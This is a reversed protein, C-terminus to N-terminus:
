ETIIYPFIDDHYYNWGSLKGNYLIRSIRRM